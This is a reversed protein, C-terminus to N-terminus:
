RILLFCLVGDFGQGRNVGGEYPYNANLLEEGDLLEIPDHDWTDNRALTHNQIWEPVHPELAMDDIQTFGELIMLYVDWVSARNISPSGKAKYIEQCYAAFTPPVLQFVEHNSPAYLKRVTEVHVPNVM